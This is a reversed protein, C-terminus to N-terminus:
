KLCYLVREPNERYSAAEYGEGIQKGTQYKNHFGRHSAEPLVTANSSITKASLMHERARTSALDAVPPAELPM